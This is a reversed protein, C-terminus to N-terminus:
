HFNEYLLSLLDSLEMVIDESIKAPYQHTLLKIKRHPRRSSNIPAKLVFKFRLNNVAINFHILHWSTVNYLIISYFPFESVDLKSFDAKGITGKDSIGKRKHKEEDM